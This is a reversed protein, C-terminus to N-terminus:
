MYARDLQKPAPAFLVELGKKVGAMIAAVERAPEVIKTRVFETTDVVQM